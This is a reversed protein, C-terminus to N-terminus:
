SSNESDSDSLGANINIIQVKPIIKPPLASSKSETKNSKSMASYDRKSGALGANKSQSMSGADDDQKAESVSEETDTIIKIDNLKNKDKRLAFAALSGARMQDAQPAPPGAGVLPYPPAWLKPARLNFTINNAFTIIDESNVNRSKKVFEIDEQYKDLISIIGNRIQLLKKTQQDETYSNSTM